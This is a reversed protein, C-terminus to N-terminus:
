GTEGDPVAWDHMLEGIGEQYAIGTGYGMGYEPLEEASFHLDIGQPNFVIKEPAMAARIEKKLVEDQIRTVEFIVDLLEQADCAFLDFGNVWEGTERDFVAGERLVENGNEGPVWIESGYFLLKENIASPYVDCSVSYGVFENKRQCWANYAEELVKELQYYPMKANYYASVKKQVTESLDDYAFPAGGMNEPGVRDREYLLVTGDELRYERSGFMKEVMDIRTGDALVRANEFRQGNIHVSLAMYCGSIKKYEVNVLLGTNDDEYFSKWDMTDIWSVVSTDERLYLQFEKGDQRLLQFSYLEGDGDVRNYGIIEGNFERTGKACGTLLMLLVFIWVFRKM